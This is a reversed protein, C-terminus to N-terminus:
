EISGAIEIHILPMGSSAFHETHGAIDRRPSIVITHCQWNVSDDDTWPTVDCTVGFM